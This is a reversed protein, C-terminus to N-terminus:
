QASQIALREEGEFNYTKAHFDILNDRLINYNNPSVNNFSVLQKIKLEGDVFDVEVAFTEQSSELSLSYSDGNFAKGYYGAKGICINLYNGLLKFENPKTLVKVGYSVDSIEFFKENIKKLWHPIAVELTKDELTDGEAYNISRNHVEFWTKDSHYRKMNEDSVQALMTLADEVQPTNVGNDENEESSNFFDVLLRKRVKLPLRELQSLLVTNRVGNLDEIIGHQPFWKTLDLNDTTTLISEIPMYSSFLSLTPFSINSSTELVKSLDKRYIGFAETILEKWSGANQWPFYSYSPFYQYYYDFFIIEKRLKGFVPFLITYLKSIALFCDKTLEIGFEGEAYSKSENYKAETTISTLLATSQPTEAFGIKEMCAKMAESFDTSVATEKTLYILIQQSFNHTTAIFSNYTIEKTFYDERELYYTMLFRQPAVEEFKIGHLPESDLEKFSYDYYLIKAM